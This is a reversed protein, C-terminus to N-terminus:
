FSMIHAGEKPTIVVIVVGTMPYLGKPDRARAVLNEENLTVTICIDCHNPAKWDLKPWFQFGPGLSNIRSKQFSGLHYKLHMFLCDVWRETKLLSTSSCQHVHPSLTTPYSQSKFRCHGEIGGSSCPDESVHIETPKIGLQVQIYRRHYLPYSIQVGYAKKLWELKRRCQM